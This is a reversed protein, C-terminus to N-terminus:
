LSFNYILLSEFVFLLILVLAILLLVTILPHIDAFTQSLIPRRAIRVAVPNVTNDDARVKTKEVELTCERALFFFILSAILPPIFLLLMETYGQFDHDFQLWGIFDAVFQPLPYSWGFFAIPFIYFCMGLLILGIAMCILGVVYLIATKHDQEEM